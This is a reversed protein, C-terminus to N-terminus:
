GHPARLLTPKPTIACTRDGRVHYLAATRNVQVLQLWDPSLTEPHPEAWAGQLLIWDFACFPNEGAPM